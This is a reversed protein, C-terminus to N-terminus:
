HDYEDDQLFQRIEALFGVRRKLHGTIAVELGPIKMQEFFAIVDNREEESNDETDKIKDYLAARATADFKTLWDRVIVRQPGFPQIPKLLPM